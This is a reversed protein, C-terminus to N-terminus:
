GRARRSLPLTLAFALALTLTLALPAHPHPHIQFSTSRQTTTQISMQNLPMYIRRRIKDSCHIRVSAPNQMKGM